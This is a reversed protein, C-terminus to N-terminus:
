FSLDGCVHLVFLPAHPGDKIIDKRPFNCDKTEGEKLRASDSLGRKAHPVPFLFSTNTDIDFEARNPGMLPFAIETEHWFEFQRRRRFRRQTIWRTFRREESNEAGGDVVDFPLFPLSPLPLIHLM